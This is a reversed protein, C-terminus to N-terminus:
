VPASPDTVGQGKGLVCWYPRPPHCDATGQLGMQWVYVGM